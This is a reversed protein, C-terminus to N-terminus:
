IFPDAKRNPSKLRSETAIQSSAGDTEQSKFDAIQFQSRFGRNAIHRSAMSLNNYKYLVLGGRVQRRRGLRDVARTYATVPARGSSDGARFLLALELIRFQGGNKM